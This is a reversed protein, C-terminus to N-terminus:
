YASDRRDILFGVVIHWQLHCHFMWAGPNDTVYSYLSKKAATCINLEERRSKGSRLGGKRLSAWRTVTLPIGFTLSTRQRTQSLQTRFLDRV